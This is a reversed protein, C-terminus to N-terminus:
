FKGLARLIREPTIPAETIRVGIADAIANAVAAAGPIISPEGVGRAGYPGDDSPVEVIQTEIDPIDMATPSRFLM